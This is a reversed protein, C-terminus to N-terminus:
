PCSDTITITSAGGLWIAVGSSGTFCGAPYITGFANCQACVCAATTATWESAPLACAASTMTNGLYEIGSGADNPCGAIDLGTCPNLAGNAFHVYITLNCGDFIYSVTVTAAPCGCYGPFATVISGTWGGGGFTLVCGGLISDTLDLTDCLPIPCPDCACEYGAAAALNVTICDITSGTATAFRSGYTISYSYYTSVPYPFSVTGTSDTTLTTTSLTLGAGPTIVVQAGPVPSNWCGLAQVTANEYTLGSCSIYVSAVTLTNGGYAVTLKYNGAAPVALGVCGTGDTTGSSIMAGALTFVTFTAGSLPNLACDQFCFSVAGAGPAITTTGGCTLAQNADYIVTGGSTVKVEYTGASPITLTICGGAGTTGSTVDSGGSRIEVLAGSIPGSSCSVVCITVQCGCCCILGGLSFQDLKLRRYAPLIM